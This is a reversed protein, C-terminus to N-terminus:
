SLGNLYDGVKNQINEAAEEASIDGEFFPHTENYAIENIEATSDWHYVPKELFEKYGEIIEKDYTGEAKSFYEDDVTRLSSIGANCPEAEFLSGEKYFTKIFEWAAKKHESSKPVAFKYKGNLENKNEGSSPYGVVYPTSFSYETKASVVAYSELSDIDRESIVFELEGNSNRLDHEEYSCENEKIFDLLDALEDTDLNCKKNATDVHDSMYCHLLITALQVSMDPDFMYKRTKEVSMLDKFDWKDAPFASFLSRRTVEAPITYLCGKYTYADTVSSYFDSLSYDPDDNLFERFDTFFGDAVLDSVDIYDTMVIDPCESNEDEKNIWDTYSIGNECDETEFYNKIVIFYDSNENNFKEVYSRMYDDETTVLTIIERSNLENIKSDDSKKMIIGDPFLIEEPGSILMAQNIFRESYESGILRVATKEDTKWGFVEYETTFFMDYGSNGDCVNGLTMADIGAPFDVPHIGYTNQDLSYFVSMLTDTVFIDGKENSRLLYRSWEDEENLYVTTKLVGTRDYVLICGKENEDCYSIVFDGSGTIKMGYPYDEFDYQPLSFLETFTGNNDIRMVKSAVTEYTYGEEMGQISHESLIYYVSGDPLVTFSSCDNCKYSVTEGTNKNVEYLTGSEYSNLSMYIRSGNLYSFLLSDEFRPINDGSFLLESSDSNKDYGYIGGEAAIILDYKDNTGFIDGIGTLNFTDTINGSVTDIVTIVVDGYGTCLVLDGEKSFFLGRPINQVNESFDSVEALSKLEDNEDLFYVGNINMKDSISFYVKGQDSVCIEYVFCEMQMVQSNIDVTKLQKLKNNYVTLINNDTDFTYINGAADTGSYRVWGSSDTAIFEGTNLNESYIRWKGNEEKTYIYKKDDRFIYQDAPIGDQGIYESTGSELDATCGVLEDTFGEGGYFYVKEGCAAVPYTGELNVESSIKQKEFYEKIPGDTNGTNQNESALPEAAPDDPRVQKEVPACATTMMATVLLASIFSCIKRKM